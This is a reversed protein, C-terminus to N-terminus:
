KKGLQIKVGLSFVLEGIKLIAIKEFNKPLKMLWIILYFAPLLIIYKRFKKSFLFYSLLNHGKKTGLGWDKNNLENAQSDHLPCVTSSPQSCPSVPKKSRKQVRRKIRVSISTQLLIRDDLNCTRLLWYKQFHVLALGM